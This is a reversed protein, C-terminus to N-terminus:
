EIVEDVRALITPPITLGLAEATKLNLALAFNTPQEIPLDSPKAGKAIRDVYDATRRAIEVFSPGYSMLGGADVWDRWAFIAPLRRALTFAALRARDNYFNPSNAVILFRRHDAPVKDLARDYDYPRETLEVGILDLGLAPAAKEIARWQHASSWDWFATAAKIDPFAQKVLEARKVALEVQQLFLGTVNGGPRALSKVYGLALPDYDIAVMVIPITTTAAIAAKLAVEPGYALLLDAKRAVLDKAAQPNGEVRNLLIYDFVFNQEEVYGLERLRGVFAVYSPITRPNTGAAGVRLMKPQKANAVIPWTAATSGLASILTRRNM